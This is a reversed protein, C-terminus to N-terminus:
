GELSIAKVPCDEKAETLNECNCEEVKVESKGEDNIEFCDPCLSVCQGCGICVEQNVKVKKVKVEAM